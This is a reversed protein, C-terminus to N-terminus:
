SDLCECLESLPSVEMFKCFLWILHGWHEPNAPRSPIDHRFYAASRISPSIANKACPCTTKRCTICLDFVPPLRQRWEIEAIEKSFNECFYKNYKMVLISSMIASWDKPYINNWSLGILPNQNKNGKSFKGTYKSKWLENGEDWEWHSPYCDPEPHNNENGHKRECTNTNHWHSAFSEYHPSSSHLGVFSWPDKQVPKVAGSSTEKAVIIECYREILSKMASIMVINEAKAIEPSTGNNLIIKRHLDAAYKQIAKMAILLHHKSKPDELFASFSSELSDNYLEWFKDKLHGTPKDLASIKEFIAILCDVFGPTANLEELNSSLRKELINAQNIKGGVFYDLVKLLNHFNSSEMRERFLKPDSVVDYVLEHKKETTLKKWKFIGVEEHGIKDIYQSGLKHLEDCKLRSATRYLFANEASIPFFALDVNSAPCEGELISELYKKRDSVDFINEIKLRVEDVLGMLEADDPDDVKNSVVVLPVSKYKSSLLKVFKLLDVQEETNVGKEADMVLIACDFTEWSDEAFDLYMKSHKAENVGPIDVIILDTDERMEVIEENLEVNFTSEQIEHSQRLHINEETIQTLTEHASMSNLEARSSIRFNNIGATTRKKSVESFKDGLLANLLTTKGVSVYGLLAIRIELKDNKM